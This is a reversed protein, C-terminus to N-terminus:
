VENRITTVAPAGRTSGQFAWSMITLEGCHLDFREVGRDEGSDVGFAVIGCNALELRLYEATDGASQRVFSIVANKKFDGNISERLLGITAADVLKTVSVRLETQMKDRAASQQAYDAAGSFTCTSLEIWAGGAPASSIHGAVTAEGEVGQYSLFIAGDAM